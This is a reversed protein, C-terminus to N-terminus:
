LFIDALPLERNVKATMSSGVNPQVLGTARPNNALAADMGTVNTSM